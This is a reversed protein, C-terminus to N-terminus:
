DPGLGRPLSRANSFFGADCPQGLLWPQTCDTAADAASLHAVSGLGLTRHAVRMCPVRYAALCGVAVGAENGVGLAAGANQRAPIFGTRLWLRSANDAAVM